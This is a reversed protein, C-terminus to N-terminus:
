EDLYSDKKDVYITKRVNINKDFFLIVVGSINDTYVKLSLFGFQCDKVGKCKEDAYKLSKYPRGANDIREENETSNLVFREVEGSNSIYVATTADKSITLKGDTSKYYYAANANFCMFIFSIVIIIKKM